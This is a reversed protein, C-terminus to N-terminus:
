IATVGYGLHANCELFDDGQHTCEPKACSIFAQMSAKDVYYLTTGVVIHYAKESSCMRIFGTFDGGHMNKQFEDLSREAEQAKGCGGVITLFL